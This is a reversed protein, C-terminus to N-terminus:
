GVRPGATWRTDRFTVRVGTSVGPDERGEYTVATVM